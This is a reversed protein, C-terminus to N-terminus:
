MIIEHGTHVRRYGSALVRIILLLAMDIEHLDFFVESDLRGM